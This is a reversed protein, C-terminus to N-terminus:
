NGDSALSLANIVPVGTCVLLTSQEDGVPIKARRHNDARSLILKSHGIIVNLM